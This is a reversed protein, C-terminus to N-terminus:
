LRDSENDIPPQGIKELREAAYFLYLMTSLGVSGFVMCMVVIQYSAAVAPAVGALVKGTMMGPISVLGVAVLSNTIPILAATLSVQRADRIPVGRRLEALCRETALSIGNMANPFVMGALAIMKRPTYWPEIEMVFQTVIMLTFGGGLFIALLSPPLLTWRHEAAARQSILAAMLLMGCVILMVLSARDTTFIMELGLGLLLLQLLMRCLAIVSPWVPMKLWRLGILVAIVPVFAIALRLPPISEVTSSGPDAM